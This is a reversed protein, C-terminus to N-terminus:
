SMQIIHKYYYACARCQWVVANLFKLIITIVM